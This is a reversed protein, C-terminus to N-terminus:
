KQDMVWVGDWKAPPQPRLKECRATYRAAVPDVEALAAFLGHAKDLQGDYYAHLATAFRQDAHHPHRCPEYVTVPERRGVVQVRGIERLTIGGGEELQRATAASLLIGTDFQKNIGELRSALNGADGLFTYDFRRTSGMNGVVVTGTNIGIRVHLEAGYREKLLPRMEDLKAQCDLAAQVGRRAHDAESLPANWFAIIADGEYKDITGGSELIIDTMATLYDNLLSTLQQPDLQEAISTFGQLDSFFITLERAEGGLKLAAPNSMLADIVDPSLYQKFAHKIFRKQRGELAYNVIVGSIVALMGAAAPAALPVWYTAQYGALAVAVAASPAALLLAIPQWTRTSTRTAIGTALGFVLVLLLHPLYPLPRAFDNALLNDLLTAHIEIGSYSGSVPTPKMDHLAPASVGFLVYRDRFFDPPILPPKGEMVLMQSEIVAAVNVTAHTQSGGRYRLIAQGDRDLPITAGNVQLARSSLAIESRPAGALYLSVGLSLVPKGDFSVLPAVRRYIGDSDPMAFVNGVAAAPTAIEAIPPSCRPLEQIRRDDSLDGAGDIMRLAPAPPLYAPWNTTLGQSESLSLAVVFPSGNSIASSFQADDTPDAADSSETFLMDFAVAKAGAQKLYQLVPVYFQRPWKWPVSFQKNAWDLSSQDILVLCIQDSHDSPVGLQRVRWDWSLREVSDLGLGTLDLLLALAAATAGIAIGHLLRRSM